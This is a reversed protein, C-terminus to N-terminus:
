SSRPRSSPRQGAPCSPRRYSCTKAITSGRASLVRLQGRTAVRGGICHTSVQVHGEVLGLDDRVVGADTSSHGSELVQHVIAGNHQQGAMQYNHMGCSDNHTPRADDAHRYLADSFCDGLHDLPSRSPWTVECPRGLDPGSSLNRRFGTAGRRLSSSPLGTLLLARDLGAVAAPRLVQWVSVVRAICATCTVLTSSQMPAATSDATAAALGPSTLVAQVGAHIHRGAAPTSTPLWLLSSFCFALGEWCGPM